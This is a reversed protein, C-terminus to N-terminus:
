SMAQDPNPNGLLIRLVIFPLSIYFAFKLGTIVALKTNYECYRIYQISDFGFKMEEKNRGSQISSDFILTDGSIVFQRTYYHTGEVTTIELSVNKPVQLKQLDDAKIHNCYSCSTFLSCLLLVLCIISDIIIRKKRMKEVDKGKIEKQEGLIHLPL